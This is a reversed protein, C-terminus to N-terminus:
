ARVTWPQSNKEIMHPLLAFRPSRTLDGNDQPPQGAGISRFQGARSVENLFNNATIEQRIKFRRRM